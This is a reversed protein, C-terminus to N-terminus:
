VRIGVIAIFDDIKFRIVQVVLRLVFIVLFPHPLRDYGDLLRAAKLMSYARECQSRLRYHKQHGKASSLICALEFLDIGSTM